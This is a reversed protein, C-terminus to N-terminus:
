DKKKQTKKGKEKEGENRKKSVLRGAFKIKKRQGGNTRGGESHRGRHQVKPHEGGQSNMRNTVESKM